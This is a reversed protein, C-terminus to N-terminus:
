EKLEAIDNNLAAIYTESREETWKAWARSMEQHAELVMNHVRDQLGHHESSLEEHKSILAMLTSRELSWREIEAKLEKLLGLTRRSEGMKILKM